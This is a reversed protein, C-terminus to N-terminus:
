ALFHFVKLEDVTGDMYDDVRPPPHTSNTPPVTPSTCHQPHTSVSAIFTLGDVALRAPWIRM